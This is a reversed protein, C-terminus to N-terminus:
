LTNDNCKEEISIDYGGGYGIIMNDDKTDFYAYNERGKRIISVFIPRIALLQHRSAASTFCIWQYQGEFNKYTSGNARTGVGESWACPGLAGGGEGQTM